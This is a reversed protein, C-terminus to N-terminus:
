SEDAGGQHFMINEDFDDEEEDDESNEELLDRVTRRFAEHFAQEASKGDFLIDLLGDSFREYLQMPIYVSRRIMDETPLCDPEDFPILVNFMIEGDEHNVTFMGMRITDNIRMLYESTERMMDPDDSAPGIPSTVFCIYDDDTVYINYTITKMRSRLSLHFRFHGEEADFSFHWGDKKLLENIREACLVSYKRKM